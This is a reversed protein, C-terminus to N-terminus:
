KDFQPVVGMAACFRMFDLLKEKPIEFRIYDDDKRERKIENALKFLEDLNVGKNM